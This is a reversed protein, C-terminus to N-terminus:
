NCSSAGRGVFSFLLLFFYTASMYIYIYIHVCCRFFFSLLCYFPMLSFTGYWMMVLPTDKLERLTQSASLSCFFFPWEDTLFLFLFLFSFPSVISCCVLVFLHCFFFFFSLPRARREREREVPEKVTKQRSRTREFPGLPSQPTIDLSGLSGHASFSVLVQFVSSEVKTKM